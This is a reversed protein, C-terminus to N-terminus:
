GGGAFTLVEIRDGDKLVVADRRDRGVIEDNVMVAVREPDAGLGKLLSPITASGGQERVEGNVILRM